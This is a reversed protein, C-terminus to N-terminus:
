FRFTTDFQLRTTAGNLSGVPTAGFVGLLGNPRQGIFGTLTLAVHSDATYNFSL